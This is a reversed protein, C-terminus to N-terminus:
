CFLILDFKISEWNLHGTTTADFVLSTCHLFLSFTIFHILFSFHFSIFLFLVVNHAIYVTVAQLVYNHEAEKVFEDREDSLQLIGGAAGRKQIFSSIFLIIIEVPNVRYISYMSRDLTSRKARYCFLHIYNVALIVNRTNIFTRPWGPRQIDLLAQLLSSKSNQTSSTEDSRQSYKVGPPWTLTKLTTPAVCCNHSDVTMRTGHTPVHAPFMRSVLCSGTWM